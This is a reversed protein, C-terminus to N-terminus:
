IIVSESPLLVSSGLIRRQELHHHSDIISVIYFLLVFILWFLGQFILCEHSKIDGLPPFLFFFYFFFFVATRKLCTSLVFSLLVYLTDSYILLTEFIRNNRRKM